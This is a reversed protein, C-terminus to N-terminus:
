GDTKDGRPHWSVGCRKCTLRPEVATGTDEIREAEGCRPCPTGEPDQPGERAIVDLAHHALDEKGEDGWKRALEILAAIHDLNHYHRGSQAYAGILEDLLATGAGPAIGIRGALAEWRARLRTEPQEAPM